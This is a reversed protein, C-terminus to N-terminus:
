RIFQEVYSEGLGSQTYWAKAKELKTFVDDYGTVEGSDPNVYILAGTVHFLAVMESCDDDVVLTHTEGPPEFVYTGAEAHWDHEKYGWGGKLTLAHVPSPHRHCGLVGGGKFRLLNVYYGQSVCFCLPRFDLCDTQPVWVRPDEEEEPVIGFSFIGPIVIDKLAEKPAAAHAPIVPRSAFRVFAKSISFRLAFLALLAFQRPRMQRILKKNGAWSREIILSQSFM